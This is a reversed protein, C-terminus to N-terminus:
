GWGWHNHLDSNSVKSESKSVSDNAFLCHLTATFQPNVSSVTIARVRVEPTFLMLSCHLGVCNAVPNLCKFHKLDSHMQVFRFVDSFTKVRSWSMVAQTQIHRSADSHIQVCRFFDCVMCEQWRFADSHMQFQTLHAACPFNSKRRSVECNM